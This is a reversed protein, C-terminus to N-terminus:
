GLFDSLQTSVLILISRNNIISTWTNLETKSSILVEQDQFILGFDDQQILIQLFRQALITFSMKTHTPFSGSLIRHDRIKYLTHFIIQM